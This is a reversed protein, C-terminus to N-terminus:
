IINPPYQEIQISSNKTFFVILDFPNLKPKIIQAYIQDSEDDLKM